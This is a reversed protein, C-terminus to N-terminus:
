PSAEPAAYWGRAPACRVRARRQMSVLRCAVVFIAPRNIVVFRAVCRAVRPQQTLWTATAGHVTKLNAVIAADLSSYKSM